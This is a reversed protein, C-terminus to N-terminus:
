LAKVQGAAVDAKLRAIALELVDALARAHLTEAIWYLDSNASPTIRTALQQTRGTDRRRTPKTEPMPVTTARGFGSREAITTVAALQGGEPKKTPELQIDSFDLKRREQM